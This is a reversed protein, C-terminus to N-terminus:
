RGRDPVSAPRRVDDCFDVQVRMLRAKIACFHSLLTCELTEAAPDPPQAASSARRSRRLSGQRFTSRDLNKRSKLPKRSSWAADLPDAFQKLKSLLPCSQIIAFIQHAV